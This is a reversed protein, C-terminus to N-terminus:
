AHPLTNFLNSCAQECRRCAQACIQCHEYHTHRDCEFACSQCAAIATQLQNYLLGWELDASRALVRGSTECIDACNLNIRVCRILQSVDPESLCADACAACAQACDFCERVCAALLEPEVHGHIPHTEVMQQAISM